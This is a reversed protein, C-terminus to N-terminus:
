ILKNAPKGPEYDAKPGALQHRMEKGRPANM